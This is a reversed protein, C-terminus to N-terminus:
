MLNKRIESCIMSATQLAVSIEDITASNDTTDFSPRTTGRGVTVDIHTVAEDSYMIRINVDNTISINGNGLRDRRTEIYAYGLKDAITKLSTQVTEKTSVNEDDETIRTRHIPIRNREFEIRM